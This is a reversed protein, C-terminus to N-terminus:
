GSLFLCRPSLDGKKDEKNRACIFWVDHLNMALCEQSWYLLSGLSPVAGQWQIYVPFDFCHSPFKDSESPAWTLLEHLIMLLLYGRIYSIGGPPTGLGQGVGFWWLTACTPNFDVSEPEWSLTESVGAGIRFTLGYWSYREKWVAM